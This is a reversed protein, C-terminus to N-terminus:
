YTYGAILSMAHRGSLVIDVGVVHVEKGIDIFMREQVGGSTEYFALLTRDLM